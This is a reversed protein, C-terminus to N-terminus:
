SDPRTSTSDVLFNRLFSTIKVNTWITWDKNLILTDVGSGLLEILLDTIKPVISLM